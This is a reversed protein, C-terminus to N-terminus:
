IVEAMLASDVAASDVSVRAWARALGAVARRTDDPPHCFPLRLFREFVGDMGFRPGAAVVLGEARAAVAVASSLPAGLQVWATLGGPVAPMRWDPLHAALEGALLDRGAALATRRDSLIGDLEPLLEALILQELVPTGLDGAFRVRAARQVFERSARIWGIRLGGWVSKGVSGITVSTGPEATAAFPPELAQGDLALEAMTEDVVVTVGHRAALDAVRVRQEAPMTRGTPNHFDPMLYALTPSARQVAQVLGGEDWGDETTVSIPMPRGGAGRLSDIAHPYSPSEVLVRDGRSLLTRAVLAIAHQAGLTVLVEDASTPLGRRRYREAIRERTVALGVTDFGSEAVFGPLATVARDVVDLLGPAAPLTAKTFDLLGDPHDHDARTSATPARVVSGSGRVSHLCGRDRLRAYAAAVTTRSVGLAAALEREAPMRADVALRGDVVLLRIRDALAGYAPPRAESLVAAPPGAGSLVAAPPGAATGPSRGRWGTLLSALASASVASRIEFGAVPALKSSNAM